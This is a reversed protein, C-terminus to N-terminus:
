CWRGLVAGERIREGLTVVAEFLATHRRHRDHAPVAEPSLWCM